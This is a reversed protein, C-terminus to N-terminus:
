NIQGNSTETVGVTNCQYSQKDVVHILNDLMESMKQKEKASLFALMALSELM